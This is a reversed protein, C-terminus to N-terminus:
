ETIETRHDSAHEAAVLNLISRRALVLFKPLIPKMAEPQRDVARQKQERKEKRKKALEGCGVL